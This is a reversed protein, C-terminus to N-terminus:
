PSPSTHETTRSALKPPSSAYVGANTDAALV